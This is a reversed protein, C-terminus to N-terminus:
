IGTRYIEEMLLIANIKDILKNNHKSLSKLAKRFPYLLRVVINLPPKYVVNLRCYARRFDFYKILYDQFATQHVVNREGDCIYFKESLRPNYYECIGAVLAANISLKERSPDAKLVSFDVWDHHEELRAYAYLKGTEIDFAGFTIYKNWEPVKKRIDAANFAPRYAEPYNKWANKQIEIIEEVYASADIVMVRFNKKGKNIEYRKKSSLAAINFPTDKICYWWNTEYCCDFDSTWRALLPKCREEGGQYEWINGNEIVTTDIDVHPPVNPIMAYNYYKWDM